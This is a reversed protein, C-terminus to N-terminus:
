RYPNLGLKIAVEPRLEKVIKEVFEKPAAALIQEQSKASQRQLWGDGVVEQQLHAKLIPDALADHYSWLEDWGFVLTMEGM